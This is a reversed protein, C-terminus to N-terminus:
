TTDVVDPEKSIAMGNPNQEEKDVPTSSWIFFIKYIEPKRKNQKKKQSSRYRKLSFLMFVNNM